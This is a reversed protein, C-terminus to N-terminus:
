TALFPELRYVPMAEENDRARQVYEALLAKQLFLILASWTCPFVYKDSAIDINIHNWKTSTSM